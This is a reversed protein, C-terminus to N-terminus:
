LNPHSIHLRSRTYLTIEEKLTKSSPYNFICTYKGEQAAEPASITLVEEWSVSATKTSTKTGVNTPTTWSSSDPATGAVASSGFTSKCTLKVEAGITYTTASKSDIGAVLM